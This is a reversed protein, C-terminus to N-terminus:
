LIGGKVDADIVRNIRELLVLNEKASIYENYYLTALREDDEKLLRWACLLPILMTADEGMLIVQEASANEDLLEPYRQYSIEYIGDNNRIGVTHSNRFMVGEPIEGTFVDTVPCVPDFRMFKNGTLEDMDFFVYKGESANENETLYMGLYTIMIRRDTYFAMLTMMPEDFTLTFDKESGSYELNYSTTIGERTIRVEGEGVYKFSISGAKKQPLYKIRGAPIIMPLSIGECLNEKRLINVRMREVVPCVEASLESIAYNVAHIIPKEYRKKDIDNANILHFVEDRIQALTKM